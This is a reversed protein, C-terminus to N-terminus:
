WAQYSILSRAFQSGNSLQKPSKACASVVVVSEYGKGNNRVSGEPGNPLPETSSVPTAGM